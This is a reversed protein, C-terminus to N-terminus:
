EVVGNEQKALTTKHHKRTNDNSDPTLRTELKNRIHRQLLICKM